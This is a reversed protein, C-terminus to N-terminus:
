ILVFMLHHFSCVTRLEEITLNRAYSDGYHDVNKTIEKKSEETTFFM